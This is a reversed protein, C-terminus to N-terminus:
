VTHHSQSSTFKDLHHPCMQFYSVMIEWFIGKWSGGTPDKEPNTLILLQLPVEHKKMIDNLHKWEIKISEFVEYLLWVVHVRNVKEVKQFTRWNRCDEIRLDGQWSALWRSSTLM